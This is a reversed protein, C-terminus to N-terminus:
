EVVIVPDYAKLLASALSVVMSKVDEWAYRVSVVSTRAAPCGEHRAAEEM